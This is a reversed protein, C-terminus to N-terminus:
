RMEMAVVVVVVLWAGKAVLVFCHGVMPDFTMENSGAAVFGAAGGVKEM